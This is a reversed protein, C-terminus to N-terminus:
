YRLMAPKLTWTQLRGLDMLHPASFGEPFIVWGFAGQERVEAECQLVAEPIEVRAPIQGHLLEHLARAAARAFSAPAVMYGGVIVENPVRGTGRMDQYAARTADLFDPWCVECPGHDVPRRAPGEFYRGHVPAPLPVSTGVRSLAELVVGLAEAASAWGTRVPQYTVDDGLGFCICSVVEGTLPEVNWLDPYLRPLDACTVVTAGSRIVHRLYETFQLFDREREAEPKLPPEQLADLPTNRGHAFNVGDWFGRTAWECPHYYISILGGGEQLLEDAVEDFRTCSRELAEGDLAMRICRSRMRFVNLVGGYWFPQDNLGIHSGEDVYTPINWRRLVPYAHPAWAGGPQGYTSCHKGFVEEVDRLGQAEQHEFEAQGEEWEADALYETVTPHLSHFDTHYGIDHAALAEIVDTRGRQLLRRAKERVIKFTASVGHGSFIRALRLAADDSAPTVYDETDFWFCVYVQQM